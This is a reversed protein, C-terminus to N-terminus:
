GTADVPDDFVPLAFPQEADDEKYPELEDNDKPTKAQPPSVSTGWRAKILDDFASRKAQETESSIEIVTLPRVSCSPVLLTVMPKLVGNHWKM